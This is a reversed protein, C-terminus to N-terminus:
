SKKNLVKMSNSSIKTAFFFNFSLITLETKMQDIWNPQQELKKVTHLLLQPQIAKHQLPTAQPQTAPLQTAKPQHQTDRQHLQTHSQHAHSQLLQHLALYCCTKHASFQLPQPHIRTVILQAPTSQLTLHSLKTHHLQEM